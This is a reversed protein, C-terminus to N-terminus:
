LQGGCHCSPRRPDNIPPAAIITLLVGVSSEINENEKLEVIAEIASQGLRHEMTNIMLPLIADIESGQSWRMPEMIQM